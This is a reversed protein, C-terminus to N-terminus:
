QALEAHSGNATLDGAICTFAVDEEQNLYELARRFDDQATEYQLHVDSIAGFTYLKEGRDAPMALPGLRISHVRNGYRDCVGIGTADEPACNEMIFDKYILM